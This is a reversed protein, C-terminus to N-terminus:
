LTHEKKYILPSEGTGKKFFLYCSSLSEFGVSYTIDIIKNDTENLLRKAKELRLNNIYKHLTINYEKKFIEIIRHETIGINQFKKYLELKTSWKNESLAKWMENQTM